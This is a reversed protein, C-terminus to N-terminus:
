RVCVIRALPRVEANVPVITAKYPDVVRLSTLTPIGFKALHSAIDNTPLTNFDFDINLM